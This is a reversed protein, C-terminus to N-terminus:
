GCGESRRWCRRTSRRVPRWTPVNSGWTISCPRWGPVQAVDGLGGRRRRLSARVPDRRRRKLGRRASRGWRGGRRRSVSWRLTPAPCSRRTARRSPPSWTPIPSSGSGTPWSRTTSSTPSGTPPWGAASSTSSTRRCSRWGRRPSPSSSRHPGSRVTGAPPGSTPTSGALASAPSAWRRRARGHGHALRTYLGETVAVVAWKSASYSSHGPLHGAMSATNV